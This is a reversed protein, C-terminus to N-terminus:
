RQHRLQSDSVMWGDREITLIYAELLSDHLVWQQRAVNDESGLSQFMRRLKNDSSHRRRGIGDGTIFLASSRRHSYDTVLAPCSAFISDDSM